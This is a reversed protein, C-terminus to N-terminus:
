GDAQSPPATATPVAGTASESPAQAPTESVTEPVSARGAEELAAEIEQALEAILAETHRSSLIGGAMGETDEAGEAGERGETALSNLTIRRVPKGDLYLQHTGRGGGTLGIGGEAAEGPGNVVCGMISIKLPVLLHAFREELRSAVAAVDFQQRACGPCAIISVGRQRLGLSRLVELGVRVEEVPDAALSVRLTDGIGEGLLTGLGVASRLSGTKGSGSETIGLHLPADTQRALLRNARITLPVDSAKCSIKYETFGAKDLLAAHRLASEVLAEANPGGHKDLLDRELSGANVGIRISCHNARAAAIVEAVREPKGINGPNFRLCAAGQDAAEIARQYHFHIDAVIPVSARSTIAALAKTSEVTPCSVRVFDAGAAVLAEIQAVTAAVDTTATNTMSQVSIPANGGVQVAGVRVPRSQRRPALPRTSYEM